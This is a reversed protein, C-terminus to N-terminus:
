KTILCFYTESFFLICLFFTSNRSLTVPWESIENKKLTELVLSRNTIYCTGKFAWTEPKSKFNCLWGMKAYKRYNESKILFPVSHSIKFRFVRLSTRKFAFTIYCFLIKSIPSVMCFFKIKSHGTVKLYIFVYCFFYFHGTLPNKESKKKLM